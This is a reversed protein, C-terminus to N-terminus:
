AQFKELLAVVAKHNAVSEKNLKKLLKAHEHDDGWKSHYHQTLSQMFEEQLLIEHLNLVDKVSLVKDM